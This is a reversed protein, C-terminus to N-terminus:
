INSYTTEFNGKTLMNELLHRTQNAYDINESLINLDKETHIDAGGSSICKYKSVIKKTINISDIIRQEESTGFAHLGFVTELGDIRKEKVYKELIDHTLKNSCTFYHALIAVGKAERILTVSKDFDLYYLYDVYIDKIFSDETLFLIYPYQEIPLEALKNYNQLISPDKESAKKMDEKIEEMRKLNEKYSLLAKVIHPRAVAEGGSQKICDEQTIKFGISNLNKTMRVMREVRAEQALKCYEKLKLDNYDVFLGVIHLSSSSGGGLDLPWGSSIEIGSIWRIGEIDKISDVQRESILSDHDTFAITDINYRKSIELLELHPYQGDSNTTHSHLSQFKNM